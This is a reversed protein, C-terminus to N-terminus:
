SRGSYQSRSGADSGEGRPRGQKRYHEDQGVQFVYKARDRENLQVVEEEPLRQMPVYNRGPRSQSGSRQSQGSRKSSTETSGSLSLVNNLATKHSRDDMSPSQSVHDRGGFIPIHGLRLRDQISGTTLTPSVHSVDSQKSHKSYKSHKSHKSSQRSQGSQSKLYDELTPEM